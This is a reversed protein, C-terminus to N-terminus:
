SQVLISASRTLFTEAGRLCDTSDVTVEARTAGPARRRMSM